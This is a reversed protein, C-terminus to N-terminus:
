GIITAEQYSHSPLYWPAGNVDIEIYVKNTEGGCESGNIYKFGDLDLNSVLFPIIDGEPKDKENLTQYNTNFVTFKNNEEDWVTQICFIYRADHLSCIWDFYVQRMTKARNIDTLIVQTKPKVWECQERASAYVEERKYYKAIETWDKDKSLCNVSDGLKIELTEGCSVVVPAVMSITAVPTLCTLLTKSLKM